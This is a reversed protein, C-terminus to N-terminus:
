EEHREFGEPRQGLRELMRYFSSRSMGALEAAHSMVGGAKKLVQPFYAAELAELAHKRADYFSMSTLDEGAAGEATRMLSATLDLLEARNRADLVGFRVVANKLERVNGPWAYGSLLSLVDLPFEAHPDGTQEKLLRTALGPIDEPRERLSPVRVRAVALRYFLDDRFAGEKVEDALVRNTAAIVRVDVPRYAKAGIPKVERQELARLLKPQLALPLEGVEDLFITGGEAQQFLGVRGQAAGTFAGKEHGFLESEILEAPISGCDVTVFPRRKRPSHDHVARALVEKGVGSEGEMLLTVGSGAIRLLFAFVHRMITSEGYAGGFIPSQSVVLPSSEADLTINLITAGMRVAVDQTVGIKHVRLGGVWTGNKSGGDHLVLGESSLEIRLHERSVTQDLLRWGATVGKGVLLSPVDLRRKQGLDPGRTVELEAARVQRTTFPAESTEADDFPRHPEHPVGGHHWAEHPAM